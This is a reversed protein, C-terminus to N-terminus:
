QFSDTFSSSLQMLDLAETFYYTDYRSKIVKECEGNRNEIFEKCGITIFFPREPNLSTKDPKIVFSVQVIQNGSRYTVYISDKSMIVREYETIHHQILTEKLKDRDHTNFHIMMKRNSLGDSLVEVSVTSILPSYNVFEIGSFRINNIRM